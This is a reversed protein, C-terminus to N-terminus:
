VQFNRLKVQRSEDHELWARVVQWQDGQCTFALLDPRRENLWVFYFIQIDIMTYSGRYQAWRRWEAVILKKERALPLVPPAMNRAYHPV